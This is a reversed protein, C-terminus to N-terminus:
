LNGLYSQFFEEHEKESKAMIDLREAMVEHGLEDALDAMKSYNVTGIREMVKAGYAMQRETSFLCIFGIIKGISKFIFNRIKNPKSGFYTLMEAVHILHEWEELYMNWVAESVRPDKTAKVHGDYAAIAALEGAFAAKLQKILKKESM